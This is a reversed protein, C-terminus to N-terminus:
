TNGQCIGKLLQDITIRFHGDAYKGEEQLGVLRQVSEHERTKTKKVTLFDGINPLCVNRSTSDKREQRSM